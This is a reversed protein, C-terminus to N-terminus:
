FPIVSAWLLAIFTGFYQPVFKKTKCYAVNANLSSNDFAPVIQPFVCGFIAGFATFWIEGFIASFHLGFISWGM